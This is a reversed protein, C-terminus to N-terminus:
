AARRLLADYPLVVRQADEVTDFRAGISEYFALAGPDRQSIELEVLAHYGYNRVRGALAQVLMGAIGCRRHTDLVYLNGVHLAWLTLRYVYSPYAIVCGVPKRDALAIFAHIPPRADPDLQKALWKETPKATQKEHEAQLKIFEALTNADAPMALRVHLETWPGQKAM